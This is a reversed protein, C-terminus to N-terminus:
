NMIQPKVEFIPMQAKARASGSLEPMFSNDNILEYANKRCVWVILKPMTSSIVSALKSRYNKKTWVVLMEENAQMGRKEHAEWVHSFDEKHVIPLMAVGNFTKGEVELFGYPMNKSFAQVEGNQVRALKGFNSVRLVEGDIKRFSVDRGILPLTNDVGPRM